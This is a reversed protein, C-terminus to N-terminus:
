AETRDRWTRGLRVDVITAIQGHRALGDIVEQGLEGSGGTVGILM